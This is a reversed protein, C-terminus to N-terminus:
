RRRTAAQVAAARGELVAGAAAQPSRHRGDGLRLPGGRVTRGWDTRRLPAGRSLQSESRVRGTAAERTLFLVNNTRLDIIPVLAPGAAITESRGMQRLTQLATEIRTPDHARMAASLLTILPSEIGDVSRRRQCFQTLSDLM